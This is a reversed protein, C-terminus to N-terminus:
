KKGGGAVAVSGWDSKQQLSMGQSEFTYGTKKSKYVWTQLPKGDTEWDYIADPNGATAQTSAASSGAKASKVRGGIDTVAQGRSLALYMVLMETSKPNNQLKNYVNGLEHFIEKNPEPSHALADNLVTVADAGRQMETLTRALGLQSDVDDPKNKVALRWYKEAMALEGANRLSQGAMFAEDADTPRADSAKAYALGSAKWDAAKNKNGDQQARQMYADGLAANADADAPSDKLIREYYAIAEDYKKGDLLTRAYRKRVAGQVEILPVYAPNQKLGDTALKEATLYDGQLYHAYSLMRVSSLSDPLVAMARRLAVKASDLQRMAEDYLQKDQASPTGPLEQYAQTANNVDQIGENNWHVWTSLRNTVVADLKKKDGKATLGTIATAFAKGAGEADNLDACALGLVGIAEFDQGDQAACQSLTAVAKGMERRYDEYNGKAKDAIAQTYYQIGGACFPNRASAVGAGFWLAAVSLVASLVRKNL